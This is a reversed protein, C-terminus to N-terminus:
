FNGIFYIFYFILILKIIKQFLFHESYGIVVGRQSVDAAQLLYM